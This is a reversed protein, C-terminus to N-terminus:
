LSTPPRALPCCSLRLAILGATVSTTMFTAGSGPPAPLSRPFTIDLSLSPPHKLTLRSNHTHLHMHSCTHMRASCGLCLSCCTCHRSARHPCLQLLTHHSSPQALEWLATPPPPIQIQGQPCLPAVSPHLLNQHPWPVGVVPGENRGRSQGMLSPGDQGHGM